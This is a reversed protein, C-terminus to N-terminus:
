FRSSLSEESHIKDSKPTKTMTLILKKTRWFAVAAIGHAFVAFLPPTQPIHYIWCRRTTGWLELFYGLAAGAMFITITRRHDVPTLIIATCLLLSFLTFSKNITPAVFTGMLIMFIGFILWYATKIFVKPTRDKTIKKILFELFMTIRDISLTAIPWAPIIWLPPREATYYHWLNTQTGWAEIALGGFTAVFIILADRKINARAVITMTMFAFIGILLWDIQTWWQGSWNIRRLVAAALPWWFYVVVLTTLIIASLLVSSDRSWIVKKTQKNLNNSPFNKQLMNKM